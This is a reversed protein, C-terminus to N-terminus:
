LLVGIIPSDNLSPRLETSALFDFYGAPWEVAQQPDNLIRGIGLTSNFNKKFKQAPLYSHLQANLKYLCLMSGEARSDPDVYSSTENGSCASAVM